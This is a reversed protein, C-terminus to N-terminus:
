SKEVPMSLADLAGASSSRSLASQAKAAGLGVPLTAGIPSPDDGEGVAVVQRRVARCFMRARDRSACRIGWGHEQRVAQPHLRLVEESIVGHRLTQGLSDHAVRSKMHRRAVRAENRSSECRNVGCCAM